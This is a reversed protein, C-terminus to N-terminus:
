AYYQMVTHYAFITVKCLCYNSRIHYAIIATLWYMIETAMDPQWPSEVYAVNDSCIVDEVQAIDTECRDRDSSSVVSCYSATDSNSVELTQVNEVLGGHNDPPPYLLYKAETLSKILAFSKICKHKRLWLIVITQLYVTFWSIEMTPINEQDHLAHLHILLYKWSYNVNTRATPEM